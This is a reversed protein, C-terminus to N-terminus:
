RRAEDRDWTAPTVGEEQLEKKKVKFIETKPLEEVFRVYRPVQFNALKDELFDILERPTLSRGDRLALAAMVEDEGLESPVGYVACEEVAPNKIIEREVDFCTINEGRRRIRETDRGVFFYNGSRDRSVIDGTHVWGDGIRAETAEENKYYEVPKHKGLYMQLEGPEGPTAVDGEETIVRCKVGLPRGLAGAPSTGVNMIIGGGSDVAGYANWVTVGYRDEFRKWTEPTLAAGMVMRVKHDRDGLSPPQMMLIEMLSGLMNFTTAERERVDEWFRRASFKSGLSFRANAYMASLGSIFLANAHFLPAFTYLNDDPRFAFKALFGIAEIRSDGYMWNVAKPLGTTGSTYMLIGPDGRRPRPEPRSTPLRYRYLVSIDKFESSPEFDDPAEGRDLIVTRLDPLRDRVAEFCEWNGHDIVIARSDSNELTHVLGDGKLSTNVPVAYMGTKQTAYFVDLFAPCNRMMIAVGEGQRIGLSLLGHAVRNSNENMERYSVEGGGHVLYVRNGNERAKEEQIDGLLSAESITLARNRITMGLTKRLTGKRWETAVLNRGLAGLFSYFRLMGKLDELRNM